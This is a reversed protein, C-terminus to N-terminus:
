PRSAAAPLGLEPQRQLSRSWWWLLPLACGLFLLLRLWRKLSM